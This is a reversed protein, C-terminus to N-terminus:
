RDTPIVFRIPKDKLMIRATQPAGGPLQWKITVEGPETRGFFAESIGPQVSSTAQTIASM